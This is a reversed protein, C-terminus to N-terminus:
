IYELPKKSEALWVPFLQSHNELKFNGNAPYYAIWDDWAHSSYMVPAIELDRISMDVIKFWSPTKWNGVSSAVALLHELLVVEPEYNPWYNNKDLHEIVEFSLKASDPDGIVSIYPWVTYLNNEIALRHRIKGTPIVVGRHDVGEGPMYNEKREKAINAINFTTQRLCTGAKCIIDGPSLSLSAIDKLQQNADDTTNVIVVPQSIDVLKVDETTVKALDEKGPPTIVFVTM